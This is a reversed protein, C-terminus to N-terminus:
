REQESLNSADGQTEWGQSHQGSTSLVQGAEDAAGESLSGKQEHGTGPAERQQLIKDSQVHQRLVSSNQASASSGAAEQQRGNSQESCEAISDIGVAGNQSNKSQLATLAGARDEASVGQESHGM